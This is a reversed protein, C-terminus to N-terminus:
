RGRKRGGPEDAGCDERRRDRKGRRWAMARGTWSISSTTPGRRDDTSQRQRRSRRALAPGCADRSRSRRTGGKVGSRTMAAGEIM